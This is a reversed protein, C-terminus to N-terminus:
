KEYYLVEGSIDYYSVRDPLVNFDVMRGGMDTIQTRGIKMYVPTNSISAEILKRQLEINRSLGKMDFAENGIIITNAELDEMNGIVTVRGTALDSVKTGYQDIYIVQVQLGTVVLRAPVTWTGTYLGDEEIMPIGYENSDLGFPMLLRFYGEGGAPAEFSVTLEDGVRLEVDESPEINSIVPADLGVYVTREVIVENGAGDIARVVIINEGPEVMLREHFNGNEDLEIEVDNILVQALEINDTASGIVHVVETNIKDNDLPKEVVLVPPTNDKIVRVPTSPETEVGNLEATVMIMNEDLPLEVEATFLKNVSDVASTKEGNVYVNVKGDATTRGEIIISDQNTYNVEDLNTIEPIDMSLEVVARIMFVGDLGQGPLPRFDGDINTYARDGHPPSSEDLGLGPCNSGVEPQITSIYFDRDTGFAFESLDIRNWAGGRVVDVFIPEGVISPTGNEDTEYIAFGIRNGGRSSAM